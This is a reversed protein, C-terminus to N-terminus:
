AAQQQLQAQKRRSVGSFGGPAASGSPRGEAAGDGGQGAEVTGDDAPMDLGVRRPAAGLPVGTTQQADATYGSRAGGSESDGDSGTPRRAAEAAFTVGHASSAPGAHGDQVSAATVQGSSPEALTVHRARRGAVPGGSQPPLPPARCLRLARTRRVTRSLAGEAAGCGTPQGRM